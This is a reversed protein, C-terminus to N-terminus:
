WPARLVSLRHGRRLARLTQAGIRLQHEIWVGDLPPHKGAAFYVSNRTCEHRFQVFAETVVIRNGHMARGVVVVGMEDPQEVVFTAGQSAQQIDRDLQWVAVHEGETDRAGGGTGGSGQCSKLKNPASVITRTTM